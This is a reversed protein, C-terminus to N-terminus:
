KEGWRDLAFGWEREVERVEEKPIHYKSKEYSRVRKLHLYKEFKEAVEDFPGLQLQHYIAALHEMPHNVMEQYSVEYLQGPSLQERDRLYTQMLDKYVWIIDKKVQQFDYDQLQFVPLINRYLKQTSPYVEMPDRFIFIFRAAPFLRLLTEIRGTNAPSKLLLRRGQQHLTTKTLLALYAEEWNQLENEPLRSLNVARDYIERIRRPFHWAHYFSYPGYNVLAMEEEQPNGTFLRMNDMPRTPPMLKKTIFPFLANTMFAHPFVSQITTVYGFQEDQSLLNHLFTTGSRWHGIIFVPAPHIKTESLRRRLRMDEYWQFPTSLFTISSITFLRLWYKYSVEKPYASLIQRWGSFRNGIAPTLFSPTTKM